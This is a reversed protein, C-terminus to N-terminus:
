LGSSGLEDTKLLHLATNTNTVRLMCSTLFLKLCAQGGLRVQNVVKGDSTGPYRCTILSLFPIRHLCSGVSDMVSGDRSIETSTATATVERPRSAPRCSQQVLEVSGGGDDLQRMGKLPLEHEGKALKPQM